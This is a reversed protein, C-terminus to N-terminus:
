TVNRSHCRGDVRVMGLKWPFITRKGFCLHRRKKHRLVGFKPSQLGSARLAFQANHKSRAPPAHALASKVAVNVSRDGLHESEKDSEQKLRYLHRKGGKAQTHGGNKHYTTQHRKTPHQVFTQKHICLQDNGRPRHVVLVRHRPKRLLLRFLLSLSLPHISISM